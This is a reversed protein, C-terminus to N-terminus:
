DPIYKVAIVAVVMAAAVAVAADIAIITFSPPALLGIFLGELLVEVVFTVLLAFAVVMAAGIADEVTYKRKREKRTKM